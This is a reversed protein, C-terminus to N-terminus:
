QLTMGVAKEWDYKRYFEILKEEGAGPIYISVGSYRAPDIPLNLFDPTAAKYLVAKDLAVKFAAADAAGQQGALQSIFDHVDFFWHKNYRFYQQVGKLNLNPINNRYQDFIVKAADAVGQLESCKVVSITVSRLNGSQANYTEYVDKAMGSLDAPTQFLYSMMNSYNYGTTLVETPSYVIYDTSDRLQYATEIGGMLCADFIIFSFKHPLAKALEVIEMEKGAESGFSKVLHAYPDVGAPYAPWTSERAVRETKYSKAETPFTGSSYYGAPLWGTGHSSLLLGNERAPFLTATVKIASTLAAATASNVQPFNYVTDMLVEGDGSKYVRILKPNANQIHSYIVLNGEEELPVFGKKLNQINGLIDSSLNNNAAMYLLITKAKVPYEPPNDSVPSCATFSVTLFLVSFFLVLYSQYRKIM